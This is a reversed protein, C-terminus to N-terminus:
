ASSDVLIYLDGWHKQARADGANFAPTAVIVCSSDAGFNNLSRVTGDINGTLVGNIWPGEELAHVTAPSQYVDVVWGGAAIDYVLTRPTSTSDLYDYYLYGNAVSMKQGQPNTDDPPYVTYPGRNVPQPTTGEHPFLNYLDDTISQEPGGAVSVAIADKTRFFINAGEAAIARPIFLGRKCGSLQISWTSGVTGQVTALANYYNPWIVWARDASFVMGFGSAWVGNILIESPSTIDEQNTDPASDPTNGKCWYLTGPRLPDGVGLYFNVNDTPGWIYALPQAALIPEAIEYTLGTGDAPAVITEIGNITDVNTATLTTTSSPRTNLTFAVTGIIIITGSLWRVNFKDGSVWSVIGNAVNVTGKRPLDISPFPEFNDEELIPNGAVDVDLLTDTLTAVSNLLIVGVGTLHTKTFIASITPPNVHTPFGVSLITVIELNGGSDVQVQNGASLGSVSALSVVSPSNIVTIAETTSTSVSTPAGLNSITGVYTFDSLGSDLRYFDVKDVQADGSLNATVNNSLVSLPSQISSPSGNSRAGTASSRYVYRYQSNTIASPPIPPINASNCTVSLGRPTHYWYDWDIEFPYNGASSFTISITVTSTNGDSGSSEETRPILPYANLTTKTQGYGSYSQGASLGPWTVQGNPSNGIGWIFDDKATVTFSYSGAAPVYFTGLISCNFDQYGQSEMAPAFLPVTGTIKAATYNAASQSGASVTTSLTTNTPAPSVAITYTVGSIVIKDGAALGNFQNGSDWTVSTGSTSVTGSFTTYQSWAVPNAGGVTLGNDFLLSNGSNVGNAQAITQILNSPGNDSANHWLYVSELPASHAQQPNNFYYVTVNGLLSLVDSAPVFTVAPAAQPEAIGVKYNLGDSRVKQMKMSDAIYMWPQVSTAPRFPLMSLPNGSYGSDVQVGNVYLNGASGIVLVFGGSPGKPTTDNLRRITHVPTPLSVLSSDQRNRGAIGGDLYKRVNQAYPYKGPPMRDVPLVLNMGHFELVTGPKDREYNM